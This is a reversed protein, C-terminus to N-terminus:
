GGSRPVKEGSDRPSPDSQRAKEAASRIWGGLVIAGLLILVIWLM